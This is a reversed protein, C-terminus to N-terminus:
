WRTAPQVSVCGHVRASRSPFVEAAASRQPVPALEVVAAHTVGAFRQSETVRGIRELSELLLDDFGEPVDDFRFGFYVLVRKYPTLARRLLDDCEPGPPRHSVELIPGGDPLFRGSTLSVPVGGYWWIAPLALRTTLVADGPRKQALLWKVGTRDDLEHNSDRSRGQVVELWGRGAIDACAWLSTVSVLIALAGRALHGRRYAERVWRVGADVCLAIGVYLAPVAWISLREYLPVLHTVALLCASLPVAALVLGLIRHRAFLFGCIVAAWFLTTLETGGPKVAFPAVQEILWGVTEAGRASRPPLARSWYERLYESGLTFRLALLYHVGLSALWGLGFVAFAVASRRGDFRWLFIWLLLAGAPTALLAGNAWWQGLVAVAWWIAARRLRHPPGDAEIVWVVLAPLLLGFFMDASYHKLELAYHSIWQGLSCMLVLAGAGMSTMWRRGVWMATAVTAVAFVLPVLRLAVESPGLVLM